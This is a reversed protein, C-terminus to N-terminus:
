RSAWYSAMLESVWAPQTTAERPLFERMVPKLDLVPTGDVADLEGVTLVRERVSLVRCITSGLNNPRNKARQAFIGTEPWKPNNRPHRSLAIPAEAKNLHFFFLVEVHSFTEMGSLAEPPFASTLEIESVNGGWYDDEAQVRSCRVYGIPKLTIEM